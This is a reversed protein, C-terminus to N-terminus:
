RRLEEPVLCVEGVIGRIGRLVHEDQGGGPVFVGMGSGHAASLRQAAFLKPSDEHRGRVQGETNPEYCWDKEALGEQKSLWNCYEAARYWTIGPMPCDASPAYRIFQRAYDYDKSFRLFQRVTVSKAAMAFTRGIRVRHLAEDDFRGSESAPSGMLFEVPGPIVVMTHGQSNVYWQPQAAAKTGALEPRSISCGSSGRRGTKRGGRSSRSSGLTRAGSAFSGSWRPTCARTPPTASGNM